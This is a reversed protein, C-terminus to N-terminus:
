SKFFSKKPLVIPRGSLALNVDFCFYLVKQAGPNDFTTGGGPVDTRESRTNDAAPSVTVLSRDRRVGSCTFM